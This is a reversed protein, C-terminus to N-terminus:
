WGNVNGQLKKYLLFHEESVLLPLLDQGLNQDAQCQSVEKDLLAGVAKVIKELWVNDGDSRFLLNCFAFHTWFPDM